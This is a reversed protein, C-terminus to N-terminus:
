VNMYDITQTHWFRHSIFCDQFVLEISWFTANKPIFTLLLYFTLIDVWVLFDKCRNTKLNIINKSTTLAIAKDWILKGVELESQIKLLVWLSFMGFM